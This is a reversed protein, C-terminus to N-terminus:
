WDDNDLQISFTNKGTYTTADADVPIGIGWLILEVVGNTSSARPAIIDVPHDSTTLTQTEDAYVFNNLSWKINTVGLPEGSGTLDTGKINADIPANGCNVVTTTSNDSGTNDGGFMGTGFDILEEM